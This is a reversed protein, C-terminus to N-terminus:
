IKLISTTMIYQHCTLTCFTFSIVIIYFELHIELTTHRVQRLVSVRHNRLTRRAATRARPLVRHDLVRGPRVWVCFEEGVTVSTDSKNRWKQLMLFLVRKLNVHSPMEISHWDGAQRCGMSWILLNSCTRPHLQAGTCLPYAGRSYVSVGSFM